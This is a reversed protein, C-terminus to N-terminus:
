RSRERAAWTSSAGRAATSFVSGLSFHAMQQPAGCGTVCIWPGDRPRFTGKAPAPPPAQRERDIRARELSTPAPKMPEAACLVLLSAAILTTM